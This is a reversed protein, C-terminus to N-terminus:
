LKEFFGPVYTFCYVKPLGLGEAIAILREAMARGIGGKQVDPRVAISRIEAMDTWIVHLAACGVFRGDLEAIVFDRIHEIVSAPSRPLMVQRLALENILQMIKSADSVRADRITLEGAGVASMAPRRRAAEALGPGRRARPEARHRRAGPPPRAGQRGRARPRAPRRDRPVAGARDGRAAGRARLRAADRQARRHRRARPRRPVASRRAGAPRRPRDRESPREVGGPPLGGRRLPDD